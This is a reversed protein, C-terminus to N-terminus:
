GAKRATHTKAGGPSKAAGGHKIAKSVAGPQRSAKRRITKGAAGGPRKKAASLGIELRAGLAKAIKEMTAVSPNEGPRELKAIQQQSVGARQALQGQSFGADRRAWRIQVAVALGAPVTIGVSGRPAVARPRPPVEGSVLHAEIWGELAEQAAELLEEHTDAFTQCGPADIFEALHHKGERTIIAHYQMTVEQTLKVGSQKEIAKITGLPLDKKPHPVTVIGPITAHKYHSHSGKTRVLFWGAAKVLGIVENSSV